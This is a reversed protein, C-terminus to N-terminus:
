FNNSVTDRGKKLWDVLASPRDTIIGDVGDRLLSKMEDIDNITWLFVKKGRRHSESLLRESYVKIGDWERPIMFADGKMPDFPELFIQALLVSRYLEDRTGGYTWDPRNERLANIVRAHESAIIVRDQSKTKELIDRLFMGMDPRTDKVEIIFRTRTFRTLVDELLPVVIGRNRFPYQGDLEFNYGADWKQIESVMMESVVGSGNTTRDLNPDHLVVLREDKTIHVDLEIAIDPHLAVAHEFAAMTNEPAELSGGRHAIVTMPRSLVDHKRAAIPRGLGVQRLIWGIVLTVAIAGIILSVFKIM